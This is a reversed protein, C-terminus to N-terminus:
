KWLGAEMEQDFQEEMQEIRERAKRLQAKTAERGENIEAIKVELKRIKEDYVKVQNEIATAKRRAGRLRQARRERERKSIPGLRRLQGTRYPHLPCTRFRCEAVARKSNLMDKKECHRLCYNNICKRPTDVELENYLSSM